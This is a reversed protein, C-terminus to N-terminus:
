SRARTIVEFQHREGKGRVPYDKRLPHATFEEPLLIRRLDPHGDFVIGFMDYVEREMWDASKWLGFMSPLTPNPDNVFTKVIIREGTTTNVLGYVVGFRDQADPYTLYDVATIEFLMDFGGKTKLSALADLLRAAPIISRKNDRFEESRIHEAGVVAKLIDAYSSM